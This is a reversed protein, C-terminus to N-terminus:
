KIFSGAAGAVIGIISGFLPLYFGLSLGTAIGMMATPIISGILVLISGVIWVYGLTKVDERKRGMSGTALLILAGILILFGGAAFTTEFLILGLASVLGWSWYMVSIGFATIWIYPTLFGIFCLVGAVLAILAAKDKLAM